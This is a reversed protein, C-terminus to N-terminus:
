ADHLRRRGRALLVAATISGLLAGALVDSFYHAGFYIRSLGVLGALVYAPVTLGPAFAALVVAAAFASTADGSPFSLSKGTVIAAGPTDARIANSTVAPRERRVAVKLGYALVGSIILGALTMKLWADARAWRMRRAVLYGVLVIAGLSDLKGFWRAFGMPVGFGPTRQLAVRFADVRPDLWLFCPALALLGLLWAVQGRRGAVAQGSM